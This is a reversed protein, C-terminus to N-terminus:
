KIKFNDAMDDLGCIRLAHQLQHVYQIPTPIMGNNIFLARSQPKWEIVVFALRSCEEPLMYTGGAADYKKWGNRELMRGTLPVPAIGNEGYVGEFFDAENQPFDLLCNYGDISKVQMPYLSKDSLYVWDELMIDTRKM